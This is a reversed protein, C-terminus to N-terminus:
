AGEDFTNVSLPHVFFHRSYYCSSLCSCVEEPNDGFEEQLTEMMDSYM